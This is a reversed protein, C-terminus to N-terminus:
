QAKFIMEGQKAWAGDKWFYQISTWSGEKIKFAGRAKATQGAPANNEGEFIQVGDEEWMTGVMHGGTTNWYWWVVAKKKYDWAFITEGEYVTKGEADKVFHTNRLFKGEYVWEFVQTDSGGGGPFPAVWTKGILPKLFQFYHPIEPEQAQIFFSTLILFCFFKFGHCM